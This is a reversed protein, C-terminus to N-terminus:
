RPKAGMRMAYRVGVPMPEKRFVNKGSGREAPNLWAFTFVRSGHTRKSTEVKLLLSKRHMRASQYALRTTRFRVIASRRARLLV